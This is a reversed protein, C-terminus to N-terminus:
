RREATAVVAFTQGFLVRAKRDKGVSMERQGKDV